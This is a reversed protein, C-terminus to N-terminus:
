QQLEVGFGAWSESHGLEVAGEGLTMTAQDHGSCRQLVVVAYKCCDFKRRVLTVDDCERQVLAVNDVERHITIFLVGHSFTM